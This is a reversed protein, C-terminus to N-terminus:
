LAIIINKINEDSVHELAINKDEQQLNNHSKIIEIAKLILTENNSKLLPKVYDTNKILEAATYVFESQENLESLIFDDLNDDINNNLLDKIANVEDKTNKDEDFLYEDNETLQNFKNKANLLIIANKSNPKSFILKEFVEYLQFSFIDSVPIIEGLGDLINNISILTDEYHETDLLTLFSEMYGIESAIFEAVSSKKMAKFVDKLLEKAGYASIFKVASLVEFDDQSNLKNHADELSSRENLSSLALASNYALPEFDSYAYQKLNEIADYNKSLSFYKAAYAKEENTGNKLIELMKTKTSEDGYNNLVESIFTDYSSSYCKLFKLINKYNDKNCAQKLRNAVNQKVFDFLFDDKSILEEFSKEDANNIIHAAAQEYLKKDKGTLQKILDM